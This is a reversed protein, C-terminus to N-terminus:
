EVRKVEVVLGDSYAIQTTYPSWAVALVQDSQCDYRDLIAGTNAEWVRVTKDRSASAIRKSDASWAVAYVWSSHASFTFIDSGATADWVRVTKDEGCSAIYKGDPSWGVGYVSGSHESYTFLTNGTTAEWIRVTKDHSGSVIRTGDPSWAVANVADSHMHYTHLRHGTSANWIHVTQDKSASAILLGSPSWAVARVFSSHGRYICSTNQHAANWVQVTQDWSGSAIRKGDPSWALARVEDSYHCSYTAIRNGTSIDWIQVGIGASALQTGDPSWIVSWVTAAHNLRVEHITVPPTLAAPSAVPQQVSLPAPASQQPDPQQLVPQQVSLPAPASQQPDPQQLVSDQAKPPLFPKQENVRQAAIDQLEEKITAINPPRKNEDLDVMQMILKKLHTASPQDGLRLLAFRFPTDAPHDGSLLQHLTAGLSYIDSRSSTQGVNYQEPASYGRSIFPITDRAKGTKFHRAIGFDILYLHREPTLMVNDPKLDRFIIPPKHTHLYGLVNCLNIGIELVEEISLRRGSAKNLHDSLTEGEVYDMVLYWCDNDSFHDYIRPLNQHRLGALMLAENRFAKAAEDAEKVSLHGQQSMEKVAVFRMGLQMDAAKYVTGMGGQGLVDLIRYRRRLQTSPMIHGDPARSPLTLSFPAPGSLIQGCARCFRANPRNAAGCVDCYPFSSSM